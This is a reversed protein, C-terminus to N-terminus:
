SRQTKAPLTRQKPNIKQWILGVSQQTDLSHSHSTMVRFRIFASCSFFTRQIWKM